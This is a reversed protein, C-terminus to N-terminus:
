QIIKALKFLRSSFVLGSKRVAPLNIEFKVKKGTKYLNILVGQEGFGAADSISLIPKDNTVALIEPLRKSESKAIILVQCENLEELNKIKKVKLKKGRPIMINEFLVDKHDYIPSEGIIGFVFERRNATSAEPWTIFNLFRAIILAKLQHEEM